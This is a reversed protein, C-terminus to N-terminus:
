RVTPAAALHETVAPLVSDRLTGGDATWFTYAGVARGVQVFGQDVVLQADRFPRLDVTITFLVRDDGVTSSESTAVKVVARKNLSPCSLARKPALSSSM